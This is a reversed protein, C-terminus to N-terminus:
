SGPVCTECVIGHNAFANIITDRNKKHIQSNVGYKQKSAEILSIMGDIAPNVSSIPQLQWSKFILEDFEIKGITEDLQKRADWLAAAFALIEYPTNYNYDDDINKPDTPNLYLSYRSDDVVSSSFYVAYGEDLVKPPNFRFQHYVNHTYEHMIGKIDRMNNVPGTKPPPIYINGDADTCGMDIGGCYKTGPTYLKIEIIKPYVYNFNDQFYQAITDGAYYAMTEDFQHGQDTADTSGFYNPQGYEVPEYVFINNPSHVRPGAICGGSESGCYNSVNIYEGKLYGSGELNKLFIIEPNPSIIPDIKYVKASYKMANLLAKVRGASVKSKFVRIQYNAQGTLAANDVEESLQNIEEVSMSELEAKLEEDSIETESVQETCGVLFIALILISWVAFIVKRM